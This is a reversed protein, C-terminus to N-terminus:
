KIAKTAEKALNEVANQLSRGFINKYRIVGKHDIVIVAPLKEIDWARHIPGETSGDWWSRWTIEEEWEAKKAEDKSEDSNVGLMVFPRDQM